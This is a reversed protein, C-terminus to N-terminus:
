GGSPAGARQAAAQVQGSWEDVDPVWFAAADESGDETTFYAALLKQAVSKGRWWRPREVRILRSLPIRVERRPKLMFFALERDTLVLIGNGRLQSMPKSALGFFNAKYTSCIAVDPALGREVEAQRHKLPRRLLLLMGVFAASMLVIFGLVLLVILLAM